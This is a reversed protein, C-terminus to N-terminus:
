GKREKGRGRVDTRELENKNQQHQRRFLGAWSEAGNVFRQHHEMPKLSFGRHRIRSMPPERIRSEDM